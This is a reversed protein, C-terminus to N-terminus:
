PLNINVMCGPPGGGPPVLWRGESKKGLKPKGKGGPSDYPAHHPAWPTGAMDEITAHVLHCLKPKM